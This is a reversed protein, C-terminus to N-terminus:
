MAIGLLNASLEARQAFVGLDLLPLLEFDADLFHDAASFVGFRDIQGLIDNMAIGIGRLGIRQVFEQRPNAMQQVLVFLADLVAPGAFSCGALTTNPASRGMRRAARSRICRANRRRGASVSIKGRDM